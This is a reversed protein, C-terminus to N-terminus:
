TTLEARAEKAEQRKRKSFIGLFRKWYLKVLVSIGAAGGAIAALLLSGTGADLYAITIGLHVAVLAPM